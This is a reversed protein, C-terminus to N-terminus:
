RSSPLNKQDGSVGYRSAIRVSVHAAAPSNMQRISAVKYGCVSGARSLIRHVVCHDTLLGRIIPVEHWRAVPM